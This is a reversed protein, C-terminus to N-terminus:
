SNCELIFSSAVNGLLCIIRPKLFSIQRKLYQMCIQKESIQPPRNNPPRCKVINTIFIDESSLNNETLTKRLIKGATGVFPRGTQDEFYGPAEGIIMLRKLFSGEGPVTNNRLISLKCLKCNKIELNIKDLTEEIM